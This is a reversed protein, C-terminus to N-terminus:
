FCGALLFFPDWIPGLHVDIHRKYPSDRPYCLRNQLRTDFLNFIQVMTVVRLNLHRQIPRIHDRSPWVKIETFRFTCFMLGQPGWNIRFPCSIPVKQAYIQAELILKDNWNYKILYQLYFIGNSNMAALPFHLWNAGVRHWSCTSHVTQLSSSVKKIYINFIHIQVFKYM